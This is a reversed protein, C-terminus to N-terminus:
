RLAQVCYLDACPCFIYGSGDMRECKWKSSCGAKDVNSGDGDKGDWRLSFNTEMGM